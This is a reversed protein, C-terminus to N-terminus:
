RKDFFIKLVCEIVRNSYFIKSILRKTQPFYFLKRLNCKKGFKLRSHITTAQIICLVNKFFICANQNVYYSQIPMESESINRKYSTCFSMKNGSTLLNSHRSSFLCEEESVFAKHKIFKDQM